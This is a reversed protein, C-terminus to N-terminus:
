ATCFYLVRFCYFHKWIWKLHGALFINNFLINVPINVTVGRSSAIYINTRSWCYFTKKKKKRLKLHLKRPPINTESSKSSSTVWCSPQVCTSIWRSLHPSNPTHLRVMRMVRACCHVCGCWLVCPLRRTWYNSGLLKFPPPLTTKRRLSMFYQLILVQTQYRTNFM